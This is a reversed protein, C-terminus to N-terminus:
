SSCQLEEIKGVERRVACAVTRGRERGGRTGGEGGGVQIYSAVAAGAVKLFNDCRAQGMAWGGGAGGAMRLPWVQRLAGMLQEVAEKVGEWGGEAEGLLLGEFAGRLPELLLHVQSPPLTFLTFWFVGRGRLRCLPELLLHAM